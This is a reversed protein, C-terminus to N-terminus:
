GPWDIVKFFKLGVNQCALVLLDGSIDLGKPGGEWLNVSGRRYEEFELVGKRFDADRWGDRWRHGYLYPSGADAVYLCDGRFCVGHPFAAGGVLYDPESDEDLDMGLDFVGLRGGRANAVVLWNGGIALGDPVEVGRRLLIRRDVERWGDFVHRSIHNRDNSGLYVELMGVLRRVTVCASAVIEEGDIQGLFEGNVGVFVAPGKRCAVVMSDEDLWCLDHPARLGAKLSGALRLRVVEDFVVSFLYILDQDYSAVALWRGSPSFRVGELRGLSWKPFGEVVLRDLVEISRSYMLMICYMNWCDDIEAWGIGYMFCGVSLGM